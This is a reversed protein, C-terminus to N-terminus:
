NEILFRLKLDRLEIEDLITTKGIISYEFHNEYRYVDEHIMHMEHSVRIWKPENTIDYNSPPNMKYVFDIGRNMSKKFLDLHTHPILFNSQEGSRYYHDYYFAEGNIYINYEDNLRDTVNYKMPM